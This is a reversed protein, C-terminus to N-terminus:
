SFKPPPTHRAIFPKLDPNIYYIVANDIKPISNDFYNDFVFATLKKAVTLNFFNLSFKRNQNNGFQLEFSKDLLNETEDKLCYIYTSGDKEVTNVVDYLEGNFLIESENNYKVPSSEKDSENIVILAFDSSDYCEDVKAKQMMVALNKLPLYVTLFSFENVTFLLILFITIVKKM